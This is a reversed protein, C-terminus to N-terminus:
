NWGRIEELGLMLPVGWGISRLGVGVVMIRGLRRHLDSYECRSYHSRESLIHLSIQKNFAVVAFCLFAVLLGVARLSTGTSIILLLVFAAIVSAQILRARYM